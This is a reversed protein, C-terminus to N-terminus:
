AHVLKERVSPMIRRSVPISEGNTLSLLGTGSSKREISRIEATNVIYSRHIKIFTSPLSHELKSLKDSHLFHDGNKLVLEVYDGAGKCYILDAISILTTKGTSKVKLTPSNTSLRSQDIILQLKDARNKEINKKTKEEALARSHQVFFLLILAAVLYFFYVDLFDSPAAIVTTIFLTIGSAIVIAGSQRKISKKVAVLLAFLLPSGLAAASKLDFGPTFFVLLLTAVLATTFWSSRYEVKLTGLVYAYACLGFGFSGLLIFILRLDHLPYSYALLGRSVEVCLQLAAILSMLPLLFNVRSPPTQFALVGFYIVGILLVGLPLLSLWYYNLALHTPNTYPAMSLEHLPTRLKLFSHQASLLLVIENEGPKLLRRPALVVSDMKGTIEEEPTAGPLGNQGVREGNLYLISSAKGSIYIGLPEAQNLMKQPIDITAKLWLERGATQTSYFSQLACNPESFNPVEKSQSNKPCVIVASQIGVRTQSVALESATASIIFILLCPFIKLM